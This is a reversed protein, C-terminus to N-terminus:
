TNSPYRLLQLATSCGGDWVSSARQYVKKAKPGKVQLIQLHPSWFPDSM